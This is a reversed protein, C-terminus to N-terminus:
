GERRSQIRKAFCIAHPTPCCGHSLSERQEAAKERGPCRHWPSRALATTGAPACRAAAAAPCRAAGGPASSSTSTVARWSRGPTHPSAAGCTRGAPSAPPGQAAGCRHGRRGSRPPLSARTRSCAGCLGTHRPTTGSPSRGRGTGSAGDRCDQHTSTLRVSVSLWIRRRCASSSTAPGSALSLRSMRSLCCSRLAKLSCHCCILWSYVRTRPDRRPPALPVAWGREGSPTERGLRRLLLHLLQLRLVAAQRTVTGLGLALVLLGAFTGALGAGVERDGDRQTGERSAGTLSPRLVGCGTPGAAYGPRAPFGPPTTAPLAWGPGQHAPCVDRPNHSVTSHTPLTRTRPFTHHPRGLGPM